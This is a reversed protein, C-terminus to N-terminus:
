YICHNACTEQLATLGHIMKKIKILKKDMKNIRLRTLPKSGFDRRKGVFPPRHVYYKKYPYDIDISARLQIVNKSWSSTFVLCKYINKKDSKEYLYAPHGGKADSRHYFRGIELHKNYIKKKSM